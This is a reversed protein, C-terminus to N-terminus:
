GGGRANRGHGFSSDEDRDDPPRDDDAGEDLNTAFGRSGLAANLSRLRERHFFASIGTQGAVGVVGALIYFLHFSGRGRTHNNVQLTLLLVFAGVIIAWWIVSIFIGRKPM